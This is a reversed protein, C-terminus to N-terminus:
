RGLVAWARALGRRRRAALLSATGAPIGADDGAELADLAATELAAAGDIDTDAV